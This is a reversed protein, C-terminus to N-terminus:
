GGGQKEKRKQTQWADMQQWVTLFQMKEKEEKRWRRQINIPVELSPACMAIDRSLLSLSPTHTSVLKRQCPVNVAKAHIIVISCQCQAKQVKNNHNKKPPPLPFLLDDPNVESTLPIHFHSRGQEGGCFYWGVFVELCQLSFLLQRTLRSTRGSIDNLVGTKKSKTRGWTGVRPKAILNM